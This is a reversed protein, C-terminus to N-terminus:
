GPHAGIDMAINHDKQQAIDLVAAPGIEVVYHWNAKDDPGKDRYVGAEVLWDKVKKGLDERDSNFVTSIEMEGM